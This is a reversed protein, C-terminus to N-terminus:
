DPTVSLTISGSADPEGIKMLGDVRERIEDDSAVVESVWQDVAKCIDECFVNVQLVLVDNFQNCHVVPDDSPYAIFRFNSLAQQARQNVISDSGEHLLACRLAYCDGAEIFTHESRSRGVRATYMPVLYSECWAIYRAASSKTHTGELGACIDPLTLALALAAYWNHARLAARVADTLHNM